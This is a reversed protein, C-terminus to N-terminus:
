SDSRGIFMERYGSEKNISKRSRGVAYSQFWEGIQYFLMVMVAEPYEGIAFAGVTAAAMLFMEDFLRGNIINRLAGWLIDWGIVAYPILYFLLQVWPLPVFHAAPVAAVMLIAALVIRRLMKTQKRTM